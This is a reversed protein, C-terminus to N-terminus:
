GGPSGGRPRGRPPRASRRSVHLDARGSRERRRHRLGVRGRHEEETVAGVLELLRNIEPEEVEAVSGHAFRDAVALHLEVPAESWVHVEPHGVDGAGVTHRAVGEDHHAAHGGVPPKRCEDGGALGHLRMEPM